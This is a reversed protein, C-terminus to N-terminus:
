SIATPAVVEDVAATNRAGGTHIQRRQIVLPVAFWYALAIAIKLM